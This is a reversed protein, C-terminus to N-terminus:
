ERWGDLVSGTSLDVSPLEDSDSSVWRRDEIKKEAPSSDKEKLCKQKKDGENTHGDKDQLIQKPSTPSTKSTTPIPPAPSTPKDPVPPAQAKKVAARTSQSSSPSATLRFSSTSKTESSSLSVGLSNNNNNNNNSSLDNTSSTANNSVSDRSPNTLPPPPREPPSRPKKVNSAKPTSHRAYYPSSDILDEEPLNCVYNTLPASISPPECESRSKTVGAQALVHSPRMEPAAGEPGAEYLTNSVATSDAAAPAPSAQNRNADTRWPNFPLCPRTLRAVTNRLRALLGEHAGTKVLLYKNKGSDEAARSLDAPMTAARPTARGGLVLDPPDPPLQEDEPLSYHWRFGPPRRYHVSLPRSSYVATPGPILRGEGGPTSPAKPADILHAPPHLPQPQPAPHPQPQTGTPTTAPSDLTLDMQSRTHWSFPASHEDRWSCAFGRASLNEDCVIKQGTPLKLKPFYECDPGLSDRRDYRRVTAEDVIAQDLVQCQEEYTLGHWRDGWAEQVARMDELLRRCLPSVSSFYEEPPVVSTVRGATPM